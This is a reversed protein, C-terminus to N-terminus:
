LTFGGNGSQPYSSIITTGSLPMGLAAGIALISILKMTERRWEQVPVQPTWGFRPECSNYFVECHRAALRDGSQKVLPVLAIGLGGSPEHRQDVVFQAAKRLAVEATLAIEGDATGFQDM